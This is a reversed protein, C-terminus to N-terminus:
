RVPPLYFNGYVQKVEFVKIFAHPDNRKVINVANKVEYSSIVMSIIYKESGSFAGVGKSITAGHSLNALLVESLHGEATIIQIEMKKNRLNIADVVLATVFLYVLVFFIGGWAPGASAAWGLTGSADIWTLLTFVLATCANIVMSYKGVLTSKKLAIYYAVVDIGGASADIKYALSSHLGTLVAAFIARALMGGHSIVFVSISDIFDGIGPLDLLNTFLSVGLVNILTFVAFRKGIGRWALVFLPINLGFYLIGYLLDYLHNADIAHGSFLNIALIITQSIGSAGGSVLRAGATSDELQAVANASPAIFTRFSVAMVLSSLLCLILSAGYEVIYKLPVHDYMFDEYRERLSRRNKMNTIIPKERPKSLHDKIKTIGYLLPTHRFLPDLPSFEFTKCGDKM